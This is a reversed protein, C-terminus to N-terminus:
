AASRETHRVLDEAVAALQEVTRVVEVRECHREYRDMDCSGLSWGWRAEPTLWLVRRALRAIEGLAADNPPRNNNRGDGLVVVTTRRTVADLHEATFRELVRGLDSSADVDLLEGAFLATVAEALPRSELLDTVEVVDAVFAFTRVRSFLRQTGAVLTLWFRAINRTSLSLDVLVVLAPKDQRRRRLVPEFPLGDYRLNHRLTAAVDVRGTRHRRRRRSASGRISRALRRAAAEVAAQEAASVKLLDRSAFGASLEPDEGALRRRRDLLARILDPLADGIAGAQAELAAVLAPDVELEELHDLLDALDAASVDIPLETGDAVALGGPEFVGRARRLRIQQTVRRLAQELAGQRHSLALEAGFLSLRLSDADGHVNEGGRRPDPSSMPAGEPHEHSHGSPAVREGDDGLTLRPPVHEAGHAHPLHPAQPPEPERVPVLGFYADFLEEFRPLDEGDKVLTARLTARAAEREGLGVAALGAIADITEATSVRVGRRRLLGAFETVVADM